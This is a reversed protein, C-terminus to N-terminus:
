AAALAALDSRLEERKGLAASCIRENAADASLQTNWSGRTPQKVLDALHVYQIHLDFGMSAAWDLWKFSHFMPTTQMVVFPVRLIDACIAGHLCETVVFRCSAVAAVFPEAPLHPDIVRFGHNAERWQGPFNEISWHHPIVGIQEAEPKSSKAMAKFEPALAYAGDCLALRHSLGLYDCTLPGRVFSVRAPVQILPKKAVNGAGSGFVHLRASGGIKLYGNLLTGIGLINFGDSILSGNSVAEPIGLITRFLLDNIDDGFNRGTWRIYRLKTM